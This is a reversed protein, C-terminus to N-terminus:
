RKRERNKKKEGILVDELVVAGRLVAGARGGQARAGRALGEVRAARPEQALAAGVGLRLGM